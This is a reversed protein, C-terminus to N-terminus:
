HISRIWQVFAPFIVEPEELEPHWRKEHEFVFYGQYDNQLLLKVGQSLPLQGTGPIVYRWGEDFGGKMAHPHQHDCSADKIHLYRIRPGIAAYSQEPTEGGVRSTHGIDWVAGFAPSTITDLLLACTISKIWFDHTEFNWSLLNAGPLALIEDIMDRGTKAAEAYNLHGSADPKGGGFIRINKTGLALVVPITRKAEDINKERHGPDCVAISSSIGSVELGADDIRSRTEAVGTTFAPLRTIDIEGAVGRLDIADFGYHKVRTLITELDWAPCGLTMVSLKMTM